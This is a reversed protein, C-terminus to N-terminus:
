HQNKDDDPNNLAGLTEEKTPSASPNIPNTSSTRSTSDILGQTTNIPEQTQTPAQSSKRSRLILIIVIIILIAGALYWIWAYDTYTRAVDSRNITFNQSMTSTKCTDPCTATLKVNNGEQAFLFFTAVGRSDAKVTVSQGVKQSISTGLDGKNTQLTVQLDPAAAVQVQRVVNSTSQPAMNRQDLAMTMEVTDYYSYYYDNGTGLGQTNNIAYNITAWKDATWRTSKVIISYQGAALPAGNTGVWKGNGAYNEKPFYDSIEMNAPPSIEVNLNGAASNVAITMLGGVQVIDPNVAITGLRTETKQPKVDTPNCPNAAYAKGSITLASVIMILFIIKKM